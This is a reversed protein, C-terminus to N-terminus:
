KKKYFFNYDNIHKAMFNMRKMNYLMSLQFKKRIHIRILVSRYSSIIHTITHQNRYDDFIVILILIM